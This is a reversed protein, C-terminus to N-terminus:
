RRPIPKTFGVSRAYAVVARDFLDAVSPARAFDALEEVAAKWAPTARLKLMASRARDPDSKPGPTPKVRDEGEPTTAV